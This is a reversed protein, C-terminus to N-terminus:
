ESAEKEPGPVCGVAPTHGSDAGQRGSDQAGGFLRRNAEEVDEFQRTRVAWVFFGGFVLLIGFTMLAQAVTGEM